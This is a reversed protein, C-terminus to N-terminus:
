SAQLRAMVVLHSRGDFPLTRWVSPPSGHDCSRRSARM